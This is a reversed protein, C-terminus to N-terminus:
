KSKSLKFQCFSNIYNALDENKYNINVLYDLYRNNGNLCMLLIQNANCAEKINPYNNFAIDCYYIESIIHNYDYETNKLSILIDQILLGEYVNTMKDFARNYVKGLMYTLSKSEQKEMYYDYIIKVIAEYYNLTLNDSNLVKEIDKVSSVGKNNLLFQIYNKYIELGYDENKLYISYQFPTIYFGSSEKVTYKDNEEETVLEKISGFDLHLLSYSLSDLVKLKITDASLNLSLIFIIFLILKYKM